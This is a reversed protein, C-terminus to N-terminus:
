LPYAPAPIPTDPMPSTYKPVQLLFWVLKLFLSVGQIVPSGRSGPYLGIQLSLELDPSHSSVSHKLSEELASARGFPTEEGGFGATWGKVCEGRRRGPEPVGSRKRRKVTGRKKKGLKGGM